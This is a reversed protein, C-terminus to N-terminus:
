VSNRLASISLVTRNIDFRNEVDVRAQCAMQYFREPCIRGLRLTGNAPCNM